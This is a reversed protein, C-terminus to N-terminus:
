KTVEEFINVVFDIVYTSAFVIVMGIILFPLTKKMDAKADPGAFMYRVGTFVIGGVACVQLILSVTGWIKRVPTKLKTVVNGTQVVNPDFGDGFGFVNTVIFLLVIVVPIIKYIMKKDM